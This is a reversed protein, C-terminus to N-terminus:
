KGASSSGPVAASSPSFGPPPLWSTENTRRNWYYTQGDNHVAEWVDHQPAPPPPPAAPYAAAVPPYAHAGLPAAVPVHAGLPAAVPIPGALVSPPPAFPLAAAAPADLIRVRPPARSPRSANGLLGANRIWVFQDPIEMLASLAFAAARGDAVQGLTDVFNSFRVFQFNDFARAPLSCFQLIRHVRHALDETTSV